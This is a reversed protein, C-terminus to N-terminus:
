GTDFNWELIASHRSQRHIPVGASAQRGLEWIVGESIAHQLFIAPSQWM